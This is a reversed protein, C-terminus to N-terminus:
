RDCVQVGGALCLHPDLGSLSEDGLVCAIVPGDVDGGELSSHQLVADGHHHRAIALM